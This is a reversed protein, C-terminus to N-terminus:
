VSEKPDPMLVGCHPQGPVKGPRLLGLQEAVANLYENHTRFNQDHVTQGQTNTPAYSNIMSHALEHLVIYLLVDDPGLQESPPHQRMCVFIHASKNENFALTRKAHRPDLEILRLNDANPHKHLLRRVGDEVEAPHAPQRRLYQLVRDVDERIRCLQNAAEVANATPMVHYLRGDISSRTPPPVPVEESHAAAAAYVALGLAAAAAVAVATQSDTTNLDM